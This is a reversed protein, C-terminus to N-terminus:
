NGVGVEEEEDSNATIRREREEKEKAKDLQEFLHYIDFDEPAVLMQKSVKNGTTENSSYQPLAVIDIESNHAGDFYEEHGFCIFIENIPRVVLMDAEDFDSEGSDDIVEDLMENSPNADEDSSPFNESVFISSSKNTGQKVLPIKGSNKLPAESHSM